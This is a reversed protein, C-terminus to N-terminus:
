LSNIKKNLVVMAMNFIVFETIASLEITESYIVDTYMDWCIGVSYKGYANVERSILIAASPIQKGRITRNTPRLNLVYCDRTLGINFQEEVKTIVWNTGVKKNKVLDINLITLM